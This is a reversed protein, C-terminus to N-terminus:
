LSAINHKISLTWVEVPCEELVSMSRGDVPPRGSTRPKGVSATSRGRRWTNLDDAAPPGTKQLSGEIVSGVNVRRDEADSKPREQVGM